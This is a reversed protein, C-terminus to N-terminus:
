QKATCTMSAPITMLTPTLMQRGFGGGGEKGRFFFSARDSELMVQQKKTNLIEQSVESRIFRVSGYRGHQQACRLM